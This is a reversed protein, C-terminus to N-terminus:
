VPLGDEFEDLLEALRTLSARTVKASDDMMSTLMTLLEPKHPLRSILSDLPETEVDVIRHYFPHLTLRNAVADCTIIPFKEPDVHRPVLMRRVPESLDLAEM